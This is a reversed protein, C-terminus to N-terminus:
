FGSKGLCDTLFEKAEEPTLDNVDKGTPVTYSYNGVRRLKRGAKDNDYIVIKTQPLTSLWRTLSSSPDNCLLAIAPYGAERIRAADFVGEVLFIYPLNMDFYELGWVAIKKGRGEDSVWTFYKALQPNKNVKSYNPNYKQYGVLQGSLNYLFFYTDGSEEDIIVRTMEPDVGRGRLHSVM